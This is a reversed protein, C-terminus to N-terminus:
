RSASESSKSRATVRKAYEDLEGQRSGFFVGRRGGADEPAGHLTPLRVALKVYARGLEM